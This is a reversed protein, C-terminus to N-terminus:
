HMEILREKRLQVMTMIHVENIRAVRVARTIAWGEGCNISRTAISAYGSETRTVAGISMALSTTADTGAAGIFGSVLMIEDDFRSRM